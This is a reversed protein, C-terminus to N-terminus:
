RIRCTSGGCGSTVPSTRSRGRQWKYVIPATWLGWMLAIEVLYQVDRLYVNVASLVFALATGYVLVIM